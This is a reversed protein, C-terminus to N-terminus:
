RVLGFQGSGEGGEEVLGPIMKLGLVSNILCFIDSLIDTEVSFPKRLIPLQCHLTQPGIIFFDFRFSALLKLLYLHFLILELLEFILAM